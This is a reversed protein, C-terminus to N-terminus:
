FYISSLETMKEGHLYKKIYEIKIKYKQNKNNEKRLGIKTKREEKM